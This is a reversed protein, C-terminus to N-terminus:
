FGFKESVYGYVLFACRYFFLKKIKNGSITEVFSISAISFVYIEDIQM